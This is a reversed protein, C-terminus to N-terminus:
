ASVPFPRGWVTAWFTPHVCDDLLDNYATANLNGKGPVLPGLGFWSFCDWVMIGGVGFKETPEITTNEQCGGFGSKDTPSGSPSAHKMMGSFANGSSWHRRAKCGELWRKANRMTIKPKHAPARGHFGM